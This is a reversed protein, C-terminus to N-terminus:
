VQTAFTKTIASPKDSGDDAQLFSEIQKVAKLGQLEVASTQTVAKTTSLLQLIRDVDVGDQELGAKFMAGYKKVKGTVEARRNSDTM